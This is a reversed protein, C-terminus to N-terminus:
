LDIVVMLLNLDAVDFALGNAVLIKEAAFEGEEGAGTEVVVLVHEFFKEKAFSMAMRVYQESGRRSEVVPRNEYTEDVLADVPVDPLKSTLLSCFNMLDEDEVFDVQVFDWVDFFVEVEVFLLEVLVIVLEFLHKCDTPLLESGRESSLENARLIVQFVFLESQRVKFPNQVNYAVASFNSTRAIVHHKCHM